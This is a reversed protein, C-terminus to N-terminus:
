VTQLDHTGGKESHATIQRFETPQGDVFTTVHAQNRGKNKSEYLCADAAKVLQERSCDMASPCAVATGISLGLRAHGDAKVAVNKVASLLRAIPVDLEEPAQACFIAAFEDGGHRALLDYSRLQEHCCDAISKLVDDGAGHGFRDNIEKFYDVDIMAVGITTGLRQARDWEEVLRRDFHARNPLLTVPDTAAHSVAQEIRNWSLLSDNGTMVAVLTDDEFVSVCEKSPRSANGVNELRAADRGANLSLMVASEVPRDFWATGSVWNRMLDGIVSLTVVGFLIGEEDVVFAHESGADICSHFVDGLSTGVPVVPHRSQGRPHSDISSPIFKLEHQM